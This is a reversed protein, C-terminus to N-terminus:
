RAEVGGLKEAPLMACCIAVLFQPSCIGLMHFAIVPLFFSSPSAPLMDPREDDSRLFFLGSDTMEDLEERTVERPQSRGADDRALM